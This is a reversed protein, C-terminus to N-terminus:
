GGELGLGGLWNDFSGGGGAECPHGEIYVWGGFNSKKEGRDVTVGKKGEVSGLRGGTNPGLLNGGKEGGTQSYAYEM